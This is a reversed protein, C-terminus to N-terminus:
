CLLRSALRSNPYSMSPYTRVGVNEQGRDGQSDRHLGAALLSVAPSAEIQDKQRDIM